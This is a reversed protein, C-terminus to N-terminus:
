LLNVAVILNINSFFWFKELFIIIQQPANRSCMFSMERELFCVNSCKALLLMFFNLGRLLPRGCPGLLLKSPWCCWFSRRLLFIADFLNLLYWLTTWHPFLFPLYLGPFTAWCLLAIEQDWIVLMILIWGNISLFSINHFLLELVEMTLLITVPFPFCFM